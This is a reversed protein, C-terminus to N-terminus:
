PGPIPPHTAALPVSATRSRRHTVAVPAASARGFLNRNALRQLWAILDNKRAPEPTALPAEPPGAVSGRWSQVRHAGYDAWRSHFIGDLFTGHIPQSRDELRFDIPEGTYPLFTSSVIWPAHM